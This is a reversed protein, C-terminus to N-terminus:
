AAVEQEADDEEAIDDLCSDCIVQDGIDHERAGEGCRDCVTEEDVHGKGDCRRCEEDGTGGRGDCDPCTVRSCAPDWRNIRSM